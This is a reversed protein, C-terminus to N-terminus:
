SQFLDAHTGTRRLILCDDSFEYILIWDGGLHVDWANRFEGSLRHGRVGRPLPEGRALLDVWAELRKVNWGRKKIRKYDKRFRKTYAIERM